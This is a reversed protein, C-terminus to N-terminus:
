AASSHPKWERALKKAEVIQAATMKPTLYIIAEDSAKGNLASAALTAWKYAQVYDQTVGYGQAYMNGLNHQAPPFAQEAARRMWKFAEGSDQSTGQGTSYMMSLVTQAITHGQEAAERWWTHAEIENKAVGEGRQYMTAVQVQAVINGQEAAKRFWKMAEAHSQRFGDGRSFMLGLMAQAEVNGEEALDRIQQSTQKALHKAPKESLAEGLVESYVAAIKQTTGLISVAPPMSVIEQDSADGRTELAHRMKRAAIEAEIEKIKASGEEAKGFKQAQFHAVVYRQYKPLRRELEDDSWTGVPQDVSAQGFSLALTVVVVLVIAIILIIM